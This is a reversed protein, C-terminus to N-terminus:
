RSTYWATFRKIGEALSVKPSFGLVERSHDIDAYTTQIDGPQMPLHNLQAKKGIGKELAEILASLPEPKNNGLNFLENKAELDIAAVIGDVIDDIYTFDRKMDGHNFVDIPRGEQIAKAFSFYAMDPRGWPGYVTFFRLGTIPINYLHHYAQAMLENTKKTAGYFNAPHETSDTISFPIKKNTGYVSSSSAYTLFIHPHKKCTELISLFGHINAEIYAQPNVLSYRVGAQAALHVIHTIHNENILNEVLAADNIDGHVIDMGQERLHSARNEKLKPDYYANFNDLGVVRDHRQLLRESLHYGIFGAAGTVLISKKKM